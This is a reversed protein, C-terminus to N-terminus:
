GGVTKRLEVIEAEKGSPTQADLGRDPSM